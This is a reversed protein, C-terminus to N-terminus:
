SFKNQTTLFSNNFHKSNNNNNNNHNNNNNNNYNNCQNNNNFNNLNHNKNTKLLILQSLAIKLEQIFQKQVLLNRKRLKNHNNRLKIKKKAHKM